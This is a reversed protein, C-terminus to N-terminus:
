VNVAKKESIKNSVVTLIANMITDKAMQNHREHKLFVLSIVFDGEGYRVTFFATTKLNAVLTAPILSDVNSEITAIRESFINVDQESFKKFNQKIPKVRFIQLGLEKILPTLAFPRSSKLENNEIEYVPATTDLKRQIRTNYAWYTPIDAINIFIGGENVFDLIKTLTSLKKLDSEPYVGGYPNLIAVYNDFSKNINILEIKLNTKKDLTNKWDEPSFDTYNSTENNTMDNGMDNLIGINPNKWRKKIKRQHLKGSCIWELTLILILLPFSIVWFVLNDILSAQDQIVFFHQFILTILTVMMNLALILEPFFGRSFASYIYWPFLLVSTIAFAVQIYFIILPETQFVLRDVFSILWNGYIGIVIGLLFSPLKGEFRESMIHYILQRHIYSKLLM